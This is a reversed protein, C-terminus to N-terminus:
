NRGRILRQHAFRYELRRVYFEYAREGFLWFARARMIYWPTCPVYWHWENSYARYRLLKPNSTHHVDEM